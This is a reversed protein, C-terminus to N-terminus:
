GPSGPWGEDEDGGGLIQGGLGALMQCVEGSPEQLCGEVITTLLALDINEDASANTPTSTLGLGLALTLAALTRM